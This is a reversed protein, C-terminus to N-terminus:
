QWKPDNFVEAHKEQGEPTAAKGDAGHCKACHQIFLPSPHVAVPEEAPALRAVALLPLLAIGMAVARRSGRVREKPMSGGRNMGSHYRRKALIGEARPTVMSRNRVETQRRETRRAACARPWSACFPVVVCGPVKLLAAGVSVNACVVGARGFRSRRTATCMFM